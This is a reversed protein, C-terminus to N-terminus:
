LGTASPRVSLTMIVDDEDAWSRPHVFLAKSSRVARLIRPRDLLPFLVMEALFALGLGAGMTADDAGAPLDARHDGRRSVARHVCSWTPMDLFVVADAARFRDTLGFEGFTGDIVWCDDATLQRQAAVFEDRSVHRWNAQWYVQDLHQVPLGLALGIRNALHTKGSATNGVVCVKRIV